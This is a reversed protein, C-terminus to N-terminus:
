KSLYSFAKEFEYSRIQERDTKIDGVVLDAEDPSSVVEEAAYEFLKRMNMTDCINFSKQLWDFETAGAVRARRNDTQNLWIVEHKEVDIAYLYCFTSKANITYASRVTKPEYIAGSDETDRAMWGARCVCESFDIGSYVNNCFVIYKMEPYLEKVADFDIDFYESGGHYGSTVDGSYTVATSQRGYMTRWSFEVREGDECLGFCSLDIDNVKEWYTFARIKKGEPLAVRSGTPLIGFGSEGASINVPVAIKEMGPAIYVKGAKGALSAKLKDELATVVIDRTEKPLVHKRETEKYSRIRGHKVYKFTRPGEDYERYMNQLQILVLPNKAEVVDLVRHIDSASYLLYNLNRLLAGNGKTDKLYKALFARSIDKGMGNEFVSYVSHVSDEYIMTIIAKANDNKPCYHINHLIGKWTDRKEVCTKVLEFSARQELLKDLVKTIFKRHVNSFRIKNLRDKHYYNWQITDVLKIFDPLQIFKCFNLDQTCVLLDIATQKSAINKPSYGYEKMISVVTQLTVENLPRSSSLLEDAMDKLYISAAAESMIRFEKPEDKETFESRDLVHEFLSHAEHEFDGFGYTMTYHVLQDFLLMDPSLERVTRPFGRYFPEPVYEGLRRACYAIMDPEAFAFGDTIRVNLQNRLAYIVAVQDSGFQKDNVLIHKDFLFDKLLRDM